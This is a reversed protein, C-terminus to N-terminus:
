IAFFSIIAATYLNVANCSVSDSICLSTWLLSIKKQLIYHSFDVGHETIGDHALRVWDVGHETIGDHALRVWNVSGYSKISFIFNSTMVACGVSPLFFIFQEPFYDDSHYCEHLVSLQKFTDFQPLAM